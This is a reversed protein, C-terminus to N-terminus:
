ERRSTTTSSAGREGSKERERRKYGCVVMVRSVLGEDRGVLCQGRDQSAILSAGCRVEREREGM